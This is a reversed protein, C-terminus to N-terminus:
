IRIIILGYQIKNALGTITLEEDDQFSAAVNLLTTKIRTLTQDPPLLFIAMVNVKQLMLNEYNFFSYIESKSTWKRKKVSTIYKQIKM